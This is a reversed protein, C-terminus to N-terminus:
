VLCRREAKVLRKGSCGARRAVSQQAGLQTACAQEFLCVRVDRWSAQQGVWSEVMSQPQSRRTHCPMAESKPYHDGAASTTCDVRPQQNNPVFSSLGDAAREAAKREIRFVHELQRWQCLVLCPSQSPDDSSTRDSLYRGRLSVPWAWSSLKDKDSACFSALLPWIEAGIVPQSAQDHRVQSRPPRSMPARNGQAGAPRCNSALDSPIFAVPSYTVNNM